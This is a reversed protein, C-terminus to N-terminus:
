RQQQQQNTCSAACTHQWPLVYQKGTFVVQGQCTVDSSLSVSHSYEIADVSVTVLHPPPHGATLSHKLGPLPYPLLVLLLLLLLLISPCSETM